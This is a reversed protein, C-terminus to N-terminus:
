IFKNKRYKKVGLGIALLIGTTATVGGIWGVASEAKNIKKKGKITDDGTEIHKKIPAIMKELVTKKKEVTFTIQSQKKNGAKDVAEATVIYDQYESLTYEYVKSHKNIKQLEGNICIEQIIDEQNELTVKFSKKEEYVRQNEVDVFHIKPPTRDIVFDAQTVAKNGAADIAKVKLVHAGEKVLKDGMQYLKGDMRVEYVYSSYDLIIQEIPYDWQFERMHKNNVQDVFRIIPNKSDIIVQANQSATYGAKDKVYASIRYIGDEQLVCKTSYTGGNNNWQNEPLVIQKGDVNEWVTAASIEGVSNNEQVEYYVEVPQSTIMYNQIGLISLSPPSNDIYIKQSKESKNGARDTVVINVVIGKEQKSEYNIYFSSHANESTGILRNGYYCAVSEIQSGQDGDNAVVSLCMEKQYWADFGKPAKLEVLPPNSDLYFERFLDTEDVKNGEEDEMWLLLQNNGNQFWESPIVIASDKEGLVGESSKGEADTFIYKTSGRESIHTIVIEPVHLYYGNNGDPPTSKLEYKKIPPKEPEEPEEPNESEELADEKEAEEEKEQSEKAYSRNTQISCLMSALVFVTVLIFTHKIKRGM